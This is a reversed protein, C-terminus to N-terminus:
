LYLNTEPNISINVNFLASKALRLLDMSAEIKYEEFIEKRETRSIAPLGVLSVKLAESLTLGTFLKNKFIHEKAIEKNSAKM